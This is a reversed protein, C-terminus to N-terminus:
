RRSKRGLKMRTSLIAAAMFVLLYTIATLIGKGIAEGGSLLISIVLLALALTLAAAGTTIMWGERRIRPSIVGVLLASLILSVLSAIGLANTPTPLKSLILAAVLSFIPILAAAILLLTFYAQLASLRIQKKM